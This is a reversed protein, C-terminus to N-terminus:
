LRHRKRCMPILKEGGEEEKREGNEVEERWGDIWRPKERRAAVM